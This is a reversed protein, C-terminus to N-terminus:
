LWCERNASRQGRGGRRYQGFSFVLDSVKNHERRYKRLEKNNKLSKERCGPISLDIDEAYELIVDISIDAKSDGDIFKGIQGILVVSTSSKGKFGAVARVTTNSVDAHFMVSRHSLTFYAIIDIINNDFKEEDLILFM